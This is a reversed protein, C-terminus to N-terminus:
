RTNPMNGGLAQTLQAALKKLGAVLHRRTQPDAEHEILSAAVGFRAQGSHDFVATGFCHMGLRLQGNDVAYGQARCAALEETLAQHNQVSADTYPPPLLPLLTQVETDSLASLMMKGTATFVAPLQMGIRFTFGLPSQSNRCALYVVQDTSLTSLTLTYPELEPMRAIAEHFEAVIDQQALFGSAWHMVHAGLVFHREDTKRLLGVAQLAGLLGHVSSRPLDLQKAIDAGSLPTTTQALLDLIRVTKDLAPVSPTAKESM